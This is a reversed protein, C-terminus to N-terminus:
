GTTLQEKGEREYYKISGILALRQQKLNRLRCCAAAIVEASVPRVAFVESKYRTAEFDTQREVEALANRLYALPEM